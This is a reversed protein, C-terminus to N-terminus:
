GPAAWFFGTRFLTLDRYSEKFMTKAAKIRTIALLKMMNFAIISFLFTKLLIKNEKKFDHDCVANEPVMIKFFILANTFSKNKNDTMANLIIFSRTTSKIFVRKAQIVTILFSYSGRM